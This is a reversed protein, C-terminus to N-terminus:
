GVKRDKVLRFVPRDGPSSLAILFWFVLMVRFSFVPNDALGGILFGSLGAILGRSFFCRFRDEEGAGARLNRFALGILWLFALLAPIGVGAALALFMNHAHVPQEDTEVVQFDREYVEMFVRHGPGYGLLPRTGIMRVVGHWYIIRKEINPDRTFNSISRLRSQLYTQPGVNVGLVLLTALLALVGLLHYRIRFHMALIILAALLSLWATRSFTLVMAAALVVTSLAIVARFRRGGGGAALAIGPPILLLLASGTTNPHMFSLWIRQPTEPFYVRRSFLYLGALASIGVSVFLVALARRRDRESSIVAAAATFFGAGLLMERFGERWSIERFPSFLYALAALALFILLPLILPNGGPRLGRDWIMGAGWLVLLPILLNELKGGVSFSVGSGPALTLRFVPQELSASADGNRNLSIQGVGIFFVLILLYIRLFSRYRLAPGPRDYGPSNM